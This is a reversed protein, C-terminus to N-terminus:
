SSSLSGHKSEQAEGRGRGTKRGAVGPRNGTCGATGEWVKVKIKAGEGGNFTKRSRRGKGGLRM